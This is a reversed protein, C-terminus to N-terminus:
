MHTNKNQALKQTHQSMLAWLWQVLHAYSTIRACTIWSVVRQGISFSRSVRLLSGNAM